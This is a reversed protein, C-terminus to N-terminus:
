FEDRQQAERTTPAASKIFPNKGVNETIVNAPDVDVRFTNFQKIGDKSKFSGKLGLCKVKLYSGMPADEADLAEKIATIINGAKWVLTTKKNKAEFLAHYEDKPTPGFTNVTKVFSKLYGEVVDGKQMEKAKKTFDAKTKEFSM